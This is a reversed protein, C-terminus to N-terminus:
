CFARGWPSSDACASQSPCSTAQAIVVEGDSVLARAVEGWPSAITLKRRLRRPSWMAINAFCVQLQAFRFMHISYNQILDLWNWKACLTKCEANDKAVKRKSGLPAFLFTLLLSVRKPSVRKAKKFFLEAFFKKKHQRTTQAHVKGQTSSNDTRKDLYIYNLM